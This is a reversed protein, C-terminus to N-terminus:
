DNKINKGGKDDDSISSDPGKGNYHYFLINKDIFLKFSNKKSRTAKVM